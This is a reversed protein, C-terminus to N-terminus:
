SPDVLLGPNGNRCDQHLRDERGRDRDGREARPEAAAVRALDEPHELCRDRHDPADRHNEQEGVDVEDLTCERLLELLHADCRRGNEERAPEDCPSSPRIRLPMPRVTAMCAMFESSWSCGTSPIPGTPSIRRTGSGSVKRMKGYAGRM